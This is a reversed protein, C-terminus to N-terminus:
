EGRNYGGASTNAWPTTQYYYGGQEMYCDSFSQGPYGYTSGVCGFGTTCQSFGYTRYGSTGQYSVGHCNFLNQCYYYGAAHYSEGEYGYTYGKCNFLNKCEAFGYALYAVSYTTKSPASGIGKCNFIDQCERFGYTDGESVAVAHCNFLNQCQTFATSNGGSQCNVEISVNDFLQDNSGSGKLGVISSNLYTIFIKSGVEGVVYKTRGNSIDIATYPIGSLTGFDYTWTGARILVRSYDNGPANIAWQALTVDSDVVFTFALSPKIALWRKFAAATILTINTSSFGAVPHQQTVVGEVADSDAAGVSYVRDLPVSRIIQLNCLNAITRNGTGVVVAVDYLALPTNKLAVLKGEPPTTNQVESYDYVNLLENSYPLDTFAGPGIKIKGKNIGDSIVAVEGALLVTNNLVFNEETDNRLQIIRNEIEM